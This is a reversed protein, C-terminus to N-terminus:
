SCTEICPRASDNKEFSPRWRSAAPHYACPAGLHLFVESQRRTELSAPLSISDSRGSVGGLLGAHAPIAGINELSCALTRRPSVDPVILPADDDFSAALAIEHPGSMATEGRWTGTVSTLDHLGIRLQATALWSREAARDRDTNVSLLTACASSAYPGSEESDTTCWRKGGSPGRAELIVCAEYDSDIFADHFEETPNFPYRNEAGPLFVGASVVVVEGIHRVALEARM